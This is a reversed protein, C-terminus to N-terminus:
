MERAQGFLQYMVYTLYIVSLTSIFIPTLFRQPFYFADGPDKHTAQCEFPILSQKLGRFTKKIKNWYKDCCGLRLKEIKKM